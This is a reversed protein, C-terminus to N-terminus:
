EDKREKEPTNPKATKPAETLEELYMVTVLGERPCDSNKCFISSNPMFSNPMFSGFIGMGDVEGGLEKKCKICWKKSM